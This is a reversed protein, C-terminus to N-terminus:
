LRAAAQAMEDARFGGHEGSCMIELMAELRDAKQAMPLAAARSIAARVQAEAEAGAVDGAACAACEMAVEGNKVRTELDMFSM